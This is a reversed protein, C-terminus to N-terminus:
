SLGADSVFDHLVKNTLLPRSKLIAIMAILVLNVQQQPCCEHVGEAHSLEVFAFMDHALKPFAAVLIAISGLLQWTPGSDSDDSFCLSQSCSLALM